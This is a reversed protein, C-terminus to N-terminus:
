AKQIFDTSDEDSLATVARRLGPLSLLDPDAEILEIADERAAAVIDEDRVVELLRLTSRRGSQVAGLVDGERRQELDLRSLVFGDNTSAIAELRTRGPSGLPAKTILLCLSAHEGRGIRGRLQHVQSVGFREADLVVMVSANPVDVGVEIVSTAVLVDIAGDVFQQM